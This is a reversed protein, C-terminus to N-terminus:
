NVYLSLQNASVTVQDNTAPTRPTDLAWWALLEGNYIGTVTGTGSPVTAANVTVFATRASNISQLTYYGSFAGTSATIGTILIRHGAYLNTPLSGSTVTYTALGASPTSAAATVTFSTISPTTVLAAHTISAGTNGTFAGFTLTGSSPGQILGGVTIAGVRQFTAGGTAAVGSNSTADYVTFQSSNAAYVQRIGNLGTATTFGQVAITDGPKYDNTATYTVFQQGTAQGMINSSAVTTTSVSGSAITVSTPAQVSTFTIATASLASTVASSINVTTGAISTVYTNAPINGAAVALQGVAISSSSAVTLATANVSATATTSVAAPAVGTALVTITNTTAAIVPVNVQDYTGSVTAAITTGKINVTSGVVIGNTNNNAAITNTLAATSTGTPVGYTTYTIQQPGVISLTGGTFTGVATPANQQTNFTFTNTANNVALVTFDASGTTSVLVGSGGTWTGSLRVVDGVGVSNAASTTVTAVYPPNGASGSVSINSIAVATLSAPNIVPAVTAVGAITSGTGVFISSTGANPESSASWSILQRTYGTAGYEYIAFQAPEGNTNFGPGTAFNNDLPQSSCLAIYTPKASPIFSIVASLTLTPNAATLPLSIGFVGTGVYTVFTGAQVGTGSVAQGVTVNTTTATLTLAGIAGTSALSTVSTVATGTLSAPVLVSFSSTQYNVNQIQVIGNIAPTLGTLGSITAHQGPFVGVLGNAPVAIAISGTPGVVTAPTTSTSGGVDVTVASVTSITAYNGTTNNLASRGTLAELAYKSGTDSFQGAM